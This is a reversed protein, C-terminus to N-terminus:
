AMLHAAGHDGDPRAGAADFHAIQDTQLAMDGAPVALGAAAAFGMDARVCAVGADVDVASKGFVHGHGFGDGPHVGGAGVGLHGCQQLRQANGHVGGADTRAHDTLDHDDIAAPGDAQHIHGHGPVKARM